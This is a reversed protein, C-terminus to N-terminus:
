VCLKTSLKVYMYAVLHASLDVSLHASLHASLHPSMYVYLLARSYPSLQIGDEAQFFFSLHASVHLRKYM